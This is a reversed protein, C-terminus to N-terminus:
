IVAFARIEVDATNNKPNKIRRPDGKLGTTEKPIRPEEATKPAKSPSKTNIGDNM